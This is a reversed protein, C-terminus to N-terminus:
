MSCRGSVGFRTRVQPLRQILQHIGSRSSQHAIAQSVPRPPADFTSRSGMRRGYADEAQRVAAQRSADDKAHVAKRGLRALLRISRRNAPVPLEPLVKASVNRDGGHAAVFTNALGSGLIMLLAYLLDEDAQDKPVVGRASNRVAVGLTDLAVRLQWPNRSSRAASM